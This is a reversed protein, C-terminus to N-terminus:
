AKADLEEFYARLTRPERGLIARLTLANGLLAHKDYWTFMRRLDPAPGGQLPLRITQPTIKRSMVEGMLSAVDRRSMDGAACLEFTGYLLRDETLAIAAVEAVDRYDVRSFRTEDSWPEAYVGSEKTRAWAAAFNQFFMAPHLFVYEMGSDLLAEEVPAKDAHNVLESLIPHIVASFVIRQVGAKKAAAVFKVGVEAENEMFAPAIYFARDMGALAKAVASADSLDGVVVDALGLSHAKEADEPRHVLGRVSAGRKLLEPIVLGASPGSAGVALVSWHKEKPKM